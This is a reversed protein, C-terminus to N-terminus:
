KTTFCLNFQVRVYVLTIFLDFTIFQLSGPSTQTDYQFRETGEASGHRGGACVFCKMKKIKM